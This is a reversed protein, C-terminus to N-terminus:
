QWIDIRLDYVFSDSGWVGFIVRTISSSLESDDMSTPNSLQLYISEEIVGDSISVNINHANSIFDSIYLETLSNALGSSSNRFYFESVQQAITNEVNNIRRQIFLERVEANNLDNIKNTTFSDMIQLNLDYVNTNELEIQFYSLIIAIGVVIIVLATIFDFMFIQSKKSKWRNVHNMM